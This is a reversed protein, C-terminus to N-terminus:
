IIYRIQNILTIRTTTVNRYFILKFVEICHVFYRGLLWQASYEKRSLLQSFTLEETMKPSNLIFNELEKDTSTM